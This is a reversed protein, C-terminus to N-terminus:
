VSLSCCVFGETDEYRRLGHDEVLEWGLCSHSYHLKFRVLFSISWMLQTQTHTYTHIYHCVAYSVIPRLCFSIGGACLVSQSASTGWCLLSNTSKLCDRLESVAKPEADIIVACPKWLTENDAAATQLKGPLNQCSMEVSAFAFPPNLGSYLGRLKFLDCLHLSINVSARLKFVCSSLPPHYLIYFASM